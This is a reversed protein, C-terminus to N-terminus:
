HRHLFWNLFLLLPLGLWKLLRYFQLILDFIILSFVTVGLPAYGCVFRTPSKIKTDPVLELRASLEMAPTSIISWIPVLRRLISTCVRSTKSFISFFKALSPAESLSTTSTVENKTFIF